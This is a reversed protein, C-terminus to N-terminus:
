QKQMKNLKEIIKRKVGAFSVRAKDLKYCVSDGEYGEYNCDKYLSIINETDDIIDEIRM